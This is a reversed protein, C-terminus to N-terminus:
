KLYNIYEFITFFIEEFKNSKPCLNNKSPMNKRTDAGKKDKSAKIGDNIIPVFSFLSFTSLSVHFM